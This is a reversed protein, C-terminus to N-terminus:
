LYQSQYDYVMNSKLNDCAYFLEKHTEPVNTMYKRSMEMTFIHDLLGM